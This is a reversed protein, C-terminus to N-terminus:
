YYQKRNSFLTRSIKQKKISKHLKIWEERLLISKNREEYNVYKYSISGM